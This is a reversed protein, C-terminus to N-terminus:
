ARRCCAACCRARRAGPHPPPGRAPAAHHQRRRGARRDAGRARSRPLARRAQRLTAVHDINVGLAIRRTDTLRAASWTPWRARWRARARLERGELCHDLPRACCARAGARLRERTRSCSRARRAGAAGARSPRWPAPPDPRPVAARRRAPMSIITRTRGRGARGDGAGCDLELATASCSSCGSRSSACRRSSRDDARAAGSRAARLCRYLEPAPRPARHAQAAAREPLLASLLGTRRLRRRHPRRARRATLTRRRAAGSWSFLVRSSPSCAPSLAPAPRARRARIRTLRGHDRTFIEVIRSTDRFPRQHLLYGPALEVRPVSRSMRDGAAAARACRRGLERAGQVWLTLHFRRGFLHNLELRARAASASSASAARRRDRDAEPGRPRGLDRRRGRSRGDETPRTARSRSRSATRCSRSWSSRSSRASSDRRHPVARATPSRSRRFAAARGRAPGHAIAQACPRSITPGEAGVGARHSPVADRAALQRSVAAAARAPARPRGQQRRRHGAPRNCCASSRWNTRTPGSCRRSWSCRSTPM